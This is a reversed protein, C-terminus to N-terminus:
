VAGAQCQLRDQLHRLNLSRFADMGIPHAYKEDTRPLWGTGPCLKGTLPFGQTLEMSLDEVGVYGCRRLLEVMVPIQTVPKTGNATYVARVHSHLSAMWTSTIDEWDTVMQAVEAVVAQRWQALSPWFQSVCKITEHLGPELSGHQLLPHPALHSKEFHDMMDTALFTPPAGTLWGGPGPMAMTKNGLALMHDIAGTQPPIAVPVVPSATSFASQLVLALWFITVRVHWSNALMRHRARESVGDCATFDVPYEHLQEKLHIPMEGQKEVMAHESYQWPAFQRNGQLWRQRTASDLKGRSRSPEARGSDDPAPTTFCPVRKKGDLVDQHFTHGRMVMQSLDLAPTALKLRRHGNQQGWSLREGTWPNNLVTSWNVRSWWLRPRSVAGRDSADVLVPHSKLRSSFYMTDEQDSMVVNEILPALTHSPLEQELADLKDALDVFKSGEAGHRGAAHEKIQRFDPCPPGATILVVCSGDPDDQKILRAVAAMDDDLVDGRQMVWPVRTISVKLCEDDVEWSFAMRPRGIMQSLVFPAAGIGDFFSLLIVKAPDVALSFGIDLSM